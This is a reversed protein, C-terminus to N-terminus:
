VDNRQKAALQFRCFAMENRHESGFPSHVSLVLFFSIFLHFHIFSNWFSLSVAVNPMEDFYIIPCSILKNMNSESPTRTLMKDDLSLDASLWFVYENQQQNVLSSFFVLWFERDNENERCEIKENM